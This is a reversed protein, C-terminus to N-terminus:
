AARTDALPPSEPALPLTVTFTTGFGVESEVAITGAHRDVIWRAIALGLGAGGASRSRVKDARWFRDFVHPLDAAAIGIGTDSVRVLANGGDVGLRVDVRGGAATYKVANDVLILLLRRLATEDGDVVLPTSGLDAFVHVGKGSALEAGRETADRCLALV